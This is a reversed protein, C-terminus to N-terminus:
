AHADEIERVAAKLQAATQGRKAIEIAEYIAPLTITQLMRQVGELAKQAEWLEHRPDPM